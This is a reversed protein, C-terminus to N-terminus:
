VTGKVLKTLGRKKTRKKKKKRKKKERKDDGLRDWGSGVGRKAGAVIDIKIDCLM